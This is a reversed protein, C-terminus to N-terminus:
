LPIWFIRYSRKDEAVETKFLGFLLSFGQYPKSESQANEKKWGSWQRFLAGLLGARGHHYNLNKGAGDYAASQADAYLITFLLGDIEVAKYGIAADQPTVKDIGRYGCFVPLIPISYGGQVLTQEMMKPDAQARFEEVQRPMLDKELDLRYATGAVCSLFTVPVLFLAIRINKM